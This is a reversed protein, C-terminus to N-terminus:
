ATEPLDLNQVLSIQAADHIYGRKVYAFVFTCILLVACSILERTKPVCIAYDKEVNLSRAQGEKHGYPWTQSEIRTPFGFVLKSEVM